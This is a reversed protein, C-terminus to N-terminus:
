ENTSICSILLLSKLYMQNGDNYNKKEFNLKLIEYYEVDVFRVVHQRDDLIEFVFDDM